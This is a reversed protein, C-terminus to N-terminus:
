RVGKRNNICKKQMQMIKNTHINLICFSLILFNMMKNDVMINENKKKAYLLLAYSFAARQWVNEVCMNVYLKGDDLKM